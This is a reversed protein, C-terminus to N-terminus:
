SVVIVRVCTHVSPYYFAAEVVKKQLKKAPRASSVRQCYAAFLLM